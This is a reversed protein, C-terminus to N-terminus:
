KVEISELRLAILPFAHEMILEGEKDCYAFTNDLYHWIFQGIKLM